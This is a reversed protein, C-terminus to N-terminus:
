EANAKDPNNSFKGKSISFNFLVIFGAPASFSVVDVPFPSNYIIQSWRVMENPKPAKTRRGSGIKKVLLNTMLYFNLVRLFPNGSLDPRLNTM